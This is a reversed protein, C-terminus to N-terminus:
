AEGEAHHCAVQRGDFARLPSPPESALLAKTQPHRLRDFITCKPGHEATRGLYMMMVADTIHEVVSLGRSNLPDALDFEGPLDM